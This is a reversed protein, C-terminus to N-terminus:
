PDVVITCVFTGPSETGTKDVEFNLNNSTITNKVNNADDDFLDIGDGTEGIGAGKCQVTAKTEGHGDTPLSDFSITFTALPINVFSVEDPSGETCTADDTVMKTKSGEGEYGSPANEEVTYTKGVILGDICAEGNVDTTVPSGTVATGDSDKISFAVGPHAITGSNYNKTTKTIKIAGTKRNNTFVLDPATTDADACTGPSATSTKDAAGNYGDPTLTESVTYTVDLDLDDACFFATESGLLDMDVVPDLAVGDAKTVQFDAGALETGDQDVKKVLIFGLRPNEFTFEIKGEVAVSGCMASDAGKHGAPVTTPDELVCWDGQLVNLMTCTGFDPDTDDAVTTCSQVIGAAIESDELTGTGDSDEFLDFKVGGLKTGEDDVKTIEILGCNTLNVPVPAIFDKLASTFSDSSRSKLYASGFSECEESDFIVELDISAEGFTRPDLTGLGDSNAALISSTNISGTAQGAGSLDMRDGWCPFSNSAECSLGESGDLWTLLGLVPVTGGKSLEYVILLDGATRLPTVDNSSATKSQNFEFDMNTTGKPDQVRTWFLHLYGPHDDVGEEKYFGFTKLDSKNPPISGDVVTPAPTDEKSGQGFSDDNSGSDEDNTKTDVVNAWDISPPSAHDVVLNADTDIEFNSGALSVDGHAALAVPALGLAAGLVLATLPKIRTVLTM